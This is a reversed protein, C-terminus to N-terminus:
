IMEAPIDKILEQYDEFEYAVEHSFAGDIDLALVRIEGGIHLRKDLPKAEQLERQAKMVQVLDRFSDPDPEPGATPKVSQGYSIPKSVFALDSSYSFGKMQRDSGVGFLYVTTSGSVGKYMESLVTTMTLDVDDIDSMGHLSSDAWTLWHDSFGFLGTGAVIMSMREWPKAKLTFGVPALPDGGVVLTDTTIHAFDPTLNIIIASM